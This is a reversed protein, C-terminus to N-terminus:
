QEVVNYVVRYDKMMSQNESERAREREKLRERETERMRGRDAETQRQNRQGKDIEGAGIRSIM